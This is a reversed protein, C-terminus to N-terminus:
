SRGRGAVATPTETDVAAGTRSTDRAAEDAAAVELDPWIPFFVAWWQEPAAEVIREFADAIATM